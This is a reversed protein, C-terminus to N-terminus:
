GPPAGPAPHLVMCNKASALTGAAAIRQVAAFAAGRRLRCVPLAMSPLLM